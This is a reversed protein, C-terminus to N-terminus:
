EQGGLDVMQDTPVVRAESAAGYISPHRGGVGSILSSSASKGM